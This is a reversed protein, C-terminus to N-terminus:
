ARAGDGAEATPIRRAERVAMLRGRVQTFFSHYEPTRYDPFTWPLEAWAGHRYQLTVEAYIGDGLYIRHAFDKVSALILKSPAVYGPDLNVPRVVPWEGKSAIDAEIKNTLRKIAALREPTVLDEMSLFYRLLPHGMEDRYYDTFEHAFLDSRLDVKGLVHSLQAEAEAFAGPYASLMGVFLKVPEPPKIQGM